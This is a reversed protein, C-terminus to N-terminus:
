RLNPLLNSTTMGNSLFVFSPAVQPTPPYRLKNCGKEPASAVIHSTYVLIQLSNVTEGDVKEIICVCVIERIAM